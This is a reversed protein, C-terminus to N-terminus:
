KLRSQYIANIQLTVKKQWQKSGFKRSIYDELVLPWGLREARGNLKGWWNQLKLQKEMIPTVTIPPLGSLEYGREVLLHSIKKEVLQVDQESLKRKWQAIYKPDPFSYNSNETYSLMEQDYPVGIFDCVRKLTLVPETILEEYTLEYRRNEPVIQKVQNWLQEAKRWREVGFWVNGAWGMGICSRAVDRPDRLIHIFRGNPWIHLARDFHRHVTAGIIPKGSRDRMQCMFSEVLQPYSLTQDIKFGTAQFIRHTELWEYYSELPPFQGQDSVQDVAYEFENCWAIEPHHKLMLRLVTTGSREAGVLFLPESLSLTKDM